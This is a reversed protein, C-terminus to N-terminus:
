APTLQVEGLAYEETEVYSMAEHRSIEMFEMFKGVSLRGM